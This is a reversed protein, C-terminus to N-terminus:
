PKLSSSGEGYGGFCLAIVEGFEGLRRSVAGFGEEEGIMVDM